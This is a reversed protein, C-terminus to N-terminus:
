RAPGPSTTPADSRRLRLWALLDEEQEPKLLARFGPMRRRGQRVVEDWDGRRFLVPREALIPGLDGGQGAAGHCTACNSAYLAAGRDPHGMSPHDGPPDPRVTAMAEEFTIRAPPPLPKGAPYEAALFDIVDPEQEKPLPAGWGVMKEVETKWQAPTLRQRSLMEDSHCILCNERVLRGAMAHREAREEDDPDAPPPAARGPILGLGVVLAPVLRLWSSRIANMPSM